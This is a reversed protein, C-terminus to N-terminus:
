VSVRKRGSLLDSSIGQKLHQLQRVTALMSNSMSRFAESTKVISEQVLMSPVPIIMKEMAGVNLNEQAGGAQMQAVQRKGPLSNLYLAFYEPLM